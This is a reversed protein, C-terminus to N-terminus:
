FWKFKIQERVGTSAPSQQDPQWANRQNMKIQQNSSALPISRTITKKFSLFHTTLWRKLTTKTPYVSRTYRLNLHFLWKNTYTKLKPSTSLNNCNNLRHIHQYHQCKLLSLFLGKPVRFYIKMSDNNKLQSSKKLLYIPLASNGSMM